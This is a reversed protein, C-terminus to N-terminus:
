ILATLALVLLWWITCFLLKCIFSRWASFIGSFRRPIHDIIRKDLSCLVPNMLASSKSVSM